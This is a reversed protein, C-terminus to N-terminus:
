AADFQQDFTVEPTLGAITQITETLRGLADFTYDYDASPDTAGTLRGFNDREYTITRITNGGSDKWRERWTRGLVDRDYRTIRDLRDEKWILNGALDYLYSETGNSTQESRLRHLYDYTYATTNGTPDTM